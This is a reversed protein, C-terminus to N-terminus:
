SSHMHIDEPPCTDSYFIIFGNWVLANSIYVIPCPGAILSNIFRLYSQRQRVNVLVIMNVGTGGLVLIFPAQFRACIPFWDRLEGGYNM